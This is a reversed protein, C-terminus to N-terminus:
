TPSATHLPPGAPPDTARPGRPRAGPGPPNGSHLAPGGSGRRLAEGSASALKLAPEAVLEVTREIVSPDRTISGHGLGPTEILRSGSWAGVLRESGEFPVQPDDPDHFVLGPIEIRRAIRDGALHRAIGPGFRREIRRQLGEMAKPPLGFMAQFTELAYAVDVNPAILVARDVALGAELALLAANAGLSHAVLAHAGGFHDAVERLARAGDLPGHTMQGTSDGHAPLDFGVVRFGAGTLPAIFGGMGAAREGWGHVLIVVPGEGATFGAIRGVSTRLAFPQTPELWGAQKRQGRESVPIRWPTFWLLYASPGALRASRRGLVKTATVTAYLVLRSNAFRV